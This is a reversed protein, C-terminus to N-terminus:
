AHIKGYKRAANEAQQCYGFQDDNIRRSETQPNAPPLATSFIAVSQGIDRVARPAVSYNGLARVWAREADDLMM